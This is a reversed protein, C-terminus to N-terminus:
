AALRGSLGYLVSETVEDLSREPSFVLWELGGTLAAGFVSGAVLELRGDMEAPPSTERIPIIFEGLVERRLLELSPQWARDTRFIEAALLRALARNDAVTELLARVMAQLAPWGTLASRASRVTETLVGVGELLLEEFLRDKSTFNYYVSGKAVGAREAVNEMTTGTIGNDAALELAAELIARKTGSQRPM